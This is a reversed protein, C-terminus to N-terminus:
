YIAVTVVPWKNTAGFKHRALDGLSAAGARLRRPRMQLTPTLTAQKPPDSHPQPLDQRLWSLVADSM